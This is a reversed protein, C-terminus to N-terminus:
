RKLFRDTWTAPRPKAVEHDAFGSRADPSSARQTKM